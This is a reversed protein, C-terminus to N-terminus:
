RTEWKPSTQWLESVLKVPPIALTKRSVVLDQLRFLYVYPADTEVLQQIQDYTRKEAERTTQTSAEKFLADVRDNKYGTADPTRPSRFHAVLDQRPDVSFNSWGNFISEYKGPVSAAVLAGFEMQNPQFNIGVAKLMPQIALVWQARAATHNMKFDLKKGDKERIGDAGPKWGAADLLAKAKDVGYEYRPAQANYVWALPHAMSYSEEAKGRFLATVLTKRDVAHSMAQRVRADSFLPNTVDFQLYWLGVGALQRSDYTATDSAFADFQDAPVLSAQIGGARLEALATAAEPLGRAVIRDLNPRGAFHDTFAKVTVGEGTRLSEVMFPGTYVPKQGFPHKPLDAVPVDKLLHRPVIFSAATTTLFLAFPEVLTIEVTDDGVIKLGSIETAAKTKFASAGQIAALGGGLAGARDPHSLLEFTFKVDQLTFPTGDHWKVNKRMKFTYVKADASVKWSEALDPAAEMEPLKVKTLGNAIWNLIFGGVATRNEFSLLTTPENGLAVIAQGGIKPGAAVASPAASAAGTPTTPTCAALAAVAATGASVKLLDRRTIKHARIMKTM